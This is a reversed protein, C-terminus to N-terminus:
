REFGMAEKEEESLELMFRAPRAALNYDEYIKALVILASDESNYQIRARTKRKATANLSEAANSTYIAKHMPKPFEYFRFMSDRKEVLSLMLRPYPKSWKSVFESFAEDCEGRSGKSYVAKFDDCIEKRDRIRVAQSVNRQVHVLCLQHKADPFSKAIAEPMGQLGDTVFLKPDGVGREKLSELFDSWNGSGEQPVARFGLVQRRGDKTMGVAVEICEKSVSSSGGYSRKLPVYTGDMFVAVCEPLARSRFEEAEKALKAILKRISERSFETSSGSALHESIESLTLGELYLRQVLYELDGTSRQYPRLMETKFLSIRDRPVRLSLPGFSTKLVREYYGNRYIREGRESSAELLFDEIEGDLAENIARELESRVFSNLDDKVMSAAEEPSMSSFLRIISM